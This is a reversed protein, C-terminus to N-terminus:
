TAATSPTSNAGCGAPTRTWRAPRRRPATAGSRTRAAGEELLGPDPRLRAGAAALVGQQLAGRGPRRGLGQRRAPDVVLDGVRCPGDRRGSRRRLVANIRARLEPYHFPKVLYDDAGFELGRVREADAGRGTLVIVPLSRTSAPTSATPRASRACSTSARPTPCRWTSCCCTPSTTAASACRTPPAPRRCRGSATPPSTTASCSWPRPTTRASSSRHSRKDRPCADVGVEASPRRSEGGAAAFNGARASAPLELVAAGRRAALRRPPLARRTALPRRRPRPLRPRARLAHRLHPRQLLPPDAPGAGAEERDLQALGLLRARVGVAVPVEVGGIAVRPLRELRRASTSGDM